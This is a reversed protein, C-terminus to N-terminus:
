EMDMATFELKLVAAMNGQNKRYVKEPIGASMRLEINEVLLLDYLGKFTDRKFYLYWQDTSKGDTPTVRGCFLDKENLWGYNYYDCLEVIGQIYFPKGLNNQMDFQVEQATLTLGATSIFEQKKRERLMEQTEVEVAEEIDDEIEELPEQKSAEPSKSSSCASMIAISLLLLLLIGSVKKM